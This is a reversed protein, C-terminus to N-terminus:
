EFNPPKKLTPGVSHIPSAVDVESLHPSALPQHMYYDHKYRLRQLLELCPLVAPSLTFFPTRVVM